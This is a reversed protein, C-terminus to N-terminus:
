RIRLRFKQGALQYIKRELDPDALPADFQLGIIAESPMKSMERKIYDILETESFSRAKIFWHIMPKTPLECFVLQSLRYTPNDGTFICELFGKTEHWEAASTREVSGPFIVPTGSATKLQQFRHMHGSFVIDYYPPISGTNISDPRNFFVQRGPGAVSADFMHHTALINLYNDRQPSGCNKLADAFRTRAKHRINPIGCIQVPINACTLISPEYFVHLLDHAHFLHRPLWSREHNGPIVAVQIGANAVTLIIDFAKDVVIDPPKSRDFVDGCHILLDAKRAIAHNCVHAFNTFFDDGRYQARNQSKQPYELGLHTDSVVIIKISSHRMGYYVTSTFASM